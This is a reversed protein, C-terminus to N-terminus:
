LIASLFSLIQRTRSRCEIDCCVAQIASRCESWGEQQALNAVNRLDTYCIRQNGRNPYFLAISVNSLKTKWGGTRMGNGSNRFFFFRTQMVNHSHERTRLKGALTSNFDVRLLNWNASCSCACLALPLCTHPLITKKQMKTEKSHGKSRKLLQVNWSAGFLEVGLSLPIVLKSLLKLHIMPRFTTAACVEFFCNWITLCARDTHNGTDLVSSPNLKKEVALSMLTVSQKVICGPRQDGLLWRSQRLSHCDTPLAEENYKKLASGFDIMNIGGLLKLHRIHNSKSVIFEMLIWGNDWAVELQSFQHGSSMVRVAGKHIVVCWRFLSNDMDLCACPCRLLDFRKPM